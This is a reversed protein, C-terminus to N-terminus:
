FLPSPVKEAALELIALFLWKREAGRDPGIRVDIDRGWWWSRRSLVVTEGGETTWAWERRWWNVWGLRFSDGDKFEARFGGKPILSLRAVLEDTQIDHMTVLPPWRFRKLAYQRNLVEAIGGSGRVRVSAIVQASDRLEYYSSWWHNSTWRCDANDGCNTDMTAVSHRTRM